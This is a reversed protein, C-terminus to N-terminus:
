KPFDVTLETTLFPLFSTKWRSVNIRAVHVITIKRNVEM